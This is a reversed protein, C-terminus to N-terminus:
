KAATIAKDAAIQAAAATGKKSGHFGSSGASATVLAQGKQDTVTVITNNFSALIHVQGYPVSRKAKKRKPVAAKPAETIEPAEAVPTKDMDDTM